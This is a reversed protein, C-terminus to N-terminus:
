NNELLNLYNTAYPNGLSQFAEMMEIGIRRNLSSSLDNDVINCIFSYALYYDALSSWKSSVKIKHLFDRYEKVFESDVLEKFFLDVEADSSDIEIIREKVAKGMHDLIAPEPLLMRVSSYSDVLITLMCIINAITEISNPNNELAIEYEDFCNALYDSINEEIWSRDQEAFKNYLEKHKSIAKEFHKDVLADHSEAYPFVIDLRKQISFLDLSFPGQLSSLDTYILEELSISYHVAIKELTEQSPYRAGSEYNAIASKSTNLVFGLNEQTEGYLRRLQRINNGLYNGM